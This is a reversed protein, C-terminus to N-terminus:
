SNILSHKTYVIISPYAILPNDEPLSLSDCNAMVHTHEHKKKDPMQNSHVQPELKAPSLHARSPETFEGYAGAQHADGGPRVM